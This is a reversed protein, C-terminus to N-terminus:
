KIAWKRLHKWATGDKLEDLTWHMQAMKHIWPERDFQQTNELNEFSHHSVECAQSHLADTLFVPVGEIASVVGPSSNHNIVAHATKLDDLIHKANSISVNKLKYRAMARRHALQNKDGPHFRVIIQRDSHKRIIGVTRVVWNMLPEGAMSWGGDRQCCILIANGAKRWPKLTINLRKSLLDWRAPDPTSNCYEGTNPFIGDYSYRLFKNSNGPDAYLFLNSDVIISRKGERTQKDFVDKRLKLHASNKSGPHVFGQVVAVDSDVPTHDCIIQGKDGAAWVGEIFNVIIQPKETNTNGPPIGMLYSAVTVTM